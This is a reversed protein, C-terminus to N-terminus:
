PTTTAIDEKFSDWTFKLNPNKTLAETAQLHARKQLDQKESAVDSLEAQQLNISAKLLLAQPWGPWLELLHATIDRAKKLKPLYNDQSQGLWKSWDLYMYGCPIQLYVQRPGYQRGKDCAKDAAIFDENSVVKKRLKYHAILALAEGMYYNPTSSTQNISFIQKYYKTAKRFSLQPDKNELFNIKSQLNLANIVNYISPGRNPRLNLGEIAVKLATKIINNPKEGTSLLFRAKWLLATSLLDQGFHKTSLKIVHKYHDTAQDIDPFPNEGYEWSVISRETAVRGLGLHSHPHTANINMIAQFLEESKKLPTKPYHGSTYLQRALLLHIRAQYYLVGLHKPNLSQAKTIARLAERLDAKPDVESELHFAREFHSKAITAWTVFHKGPLELADYCADIAKQRLAYHEKGISQLYLAKMRYIDSLRMYYRRNKQSSPFQKLYNEALTLHERPDETQNALYSAWTVHLFVLESLTDYDAKHSLVQKAHWIGKELQPRIDRSQTMGRTGWLRYVKASVAHAQIYDPNIALAKEAAIISRARPVQPNEGQYTELEMAAFELQALATYISPSSEGVRAAKTYAKRSAQFSKRALDKESTNNQAQGKAFLIDGRLKPAEYFWALHNPLSEEFEDLQTLAKDLNGEYFAVLAALYAESPVDSGSSKNLFHLVLKRYKEKVEKLRNHRLEKDRTREAEILASRYRHGHILALTYAVRPEKYGHTWALELHQKAEPYNELALYGRGLAYHGVARALSGTEEIDREIVSIKDQISRHDTRVDHLPSLASYRAMGEMTNALETYHQALRERVFVQQREWLAWGLTTLMMSSTVLALRVYFIYKQIWKRIRYVQDNAQAEVPDGVLFRELDKALAEASLYRDSSNKQLCRLTIAELDLPINQNYFTPPKPETHIVNALTELPNSGSIPRTNTLATYLTAGLSYVDTRQDLSQTQGQAQEPAMYPPSGLVTGTITVEDHPSRALGFDVVYAQYNRETEEIMINSPKIDRHIIGAQHAAHVGLAAERILMVKQELSLKDKMVSLPKGNIYQMVIYVRGELEGVEYVKCVRPHNVKAQAQAESIFRDTDLRENNRRVLKLAVLRSLSLDRVLFVRGMGGQGLLELPEFRKKLSEPFDLTQSRSKDSSKDPSRSNDESLHEQARDLIHQPPDIITIDRDTLPESHDRAVQTSCALDWLSSLDEDSIKGNEKLLWLPRLNRTEAEKKLKSAENPSVFGGNIAALIEDDLPNGM